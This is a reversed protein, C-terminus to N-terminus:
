LADLIASAEANVYVFVKWAESVLSYVWLPLYDRRFESSAYQICPLFELGYSCMISM